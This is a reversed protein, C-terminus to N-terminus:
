KFLEEMTYIDSLTIYKFQDLFGFGFEKNYINTDDTYGTIFCSKTRTDLSFLVFDYLSIDFYSFDKRKINFYTLDKM